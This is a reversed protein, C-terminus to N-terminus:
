KIEVLDGIEMAHTMSIIQATATRDGVTLIALEGLVTRAPVMNARYTRLEGNFDIDFEHPVAYRLYDPLRPSLGADAGM